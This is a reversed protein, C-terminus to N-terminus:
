NLLRDDLDEENAFIYDFPIHHIFRVGSVKM